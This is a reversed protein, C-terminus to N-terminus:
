LSVGEKQSLKHYANNILLTMKNAMETDGKYVDPHWKKIQKYYAKKLQEKSEVKNIELITLYEEDTSRTNNTENQSNFRHFHERYEKNNNNQNFNNADDFRKIDDNTPQFQKNYDNSQINEMDNDNAKWIHQNRAWFGFLSGSAVCSTLTIIGRIILAVTGFVPTILPLIALGVLSGTFFFRVPSHVQTNMCKENYGNVIKYLKVGDLEYEYIYAPMYYSKTEIQCSNLNMQILIDRVYDASYNYKVQNVCRHAEMQKIANIVKELAFSITIKHPEIYRKKYWNTTGLLDKDKLPIMEDLLENPFITEIIKRPYQFGAYIQTSTEGFNYNTQPLQLERLTRWDTVIRHRIVPKHDLYMIYQEMRNIGYCCDFQSSLNKFSATHFPLYVEMVHNENVEEMKKFVGKNENLIEIARRRAVKFPLGLFPSIKTSYARFRHM